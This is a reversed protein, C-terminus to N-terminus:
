LSKSAEIVNKIIASHKKLGEVLANYMVGNKSLETTEVDLDVSNGDNRAMHGDRFFITAKGSDSDNFKDLHNNDTLALKLELPNSEGFAEKAKEAMMEEFDIEKPRYMPTDVNAINSSILDQRISRYNLAEYVLPRAPSYEFIDM